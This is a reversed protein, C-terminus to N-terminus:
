MLVVSGILILLLLMVLAVIGIPGEAAGEVFKGLKISLRNQGEFM